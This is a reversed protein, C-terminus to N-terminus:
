RGNHPSSSSATVEEFQMEWEDIEKFKELQMALMSRLGGLVVIKETGPGPSPHLSSRDIVEDGDQPNGLTPSNEKDSTQRSYRQTM